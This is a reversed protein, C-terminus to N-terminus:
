KKNSDVMKWFEDATMDIREDALVIDNSAWGFSGDEAYVVGSLKEYVQTVMYYGTSYHGRGTVKRMTKAKRVEGKKPFSYAACEARLWKTIYSVGSTKNYHSKGCFYVRYNDIFKFLVEAFLEDCLEKIWERNGDKLWKAIYEVFYDKGVTVNSCVKEDSVVHYYLEALQEEDLTEMWERNTM